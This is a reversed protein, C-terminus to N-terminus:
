VLTNGIELNRTLRKYVFVCLELDMGSAHDTISINENITVKYRVFLAFLVFFRFCLGRISAKLLPVIKALLFISKKRFFASM